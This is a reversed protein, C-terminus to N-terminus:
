PLGWALSAFVCLGFGICCLGNEIVEKRYPRASQALAQSLAWGARLRMRITNSPIASGSVDIAEALPMQRGRFQVMVTNRKNRQQESTSAWRCNEPEYNGDNDIRDISQGSPRAGMDKFFNAFDDWRACVKIGRGGYSQYRPNNPNNCRDRMQLWLQYSSANSLGHKGM